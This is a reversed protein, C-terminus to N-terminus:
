VIPRKLDHLRTVAMRTTEERGDTFHFVPSVPTRGADKPREVKAGRGRRGKGPEGPPGTVERPEGRDGGQQGPVRGVPRMQLGLVARGARIRM